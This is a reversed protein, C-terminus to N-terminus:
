VEHEKVWETKNNFLDKAPISMLRDLEATDNDETTVNKSVFKDLGKRYDPKEM